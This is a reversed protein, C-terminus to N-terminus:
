QVMQSTAFDNALVFQSGEMWLRYTPTNRMGCPWCSTRIWPWFRGIKSDLDWETLPGHFLPNLCKIKGVLFIYDGLLKFTPWQRLSVSLYPLFPLNWWIEDQVKHSCFTWLIDLLATKYKKSRTFEEFHTSVDEGSKPNFMRFFVQWFLVQLCSIWYCGLLPGCGFYVRLSSGRLNAQNTTPFFLCINGLHVTSLLFTM